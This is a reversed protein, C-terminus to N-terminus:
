PLIEERASLYVRLKALAARELRCVHAQSIGLEKGIEAQTKGRFFRGEVVARLQGDLREIADSIEVSDPLDGEAASERSRDPRGEHPPIEDLYALPSTAELAQVLVDTSVGLQQAVEAATPDHGTESRKRDVVQRALHAIDKLRREVKLPTNDRLYRRIEGLIHPVAFTSFLVGYSPDFRDVAKLLGIAGLQFLDDKETLGTYKRVCAWILGTNAQFIAERAEPDGQKVRQFLGLDLSQM